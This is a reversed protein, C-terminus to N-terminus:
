NRTLTKQYTKEGAVPVSEVPPLRSVCPVYVTVPSRACPCEVKGNKGTGTGTCYRYKKGTGPVPLVGAGACMHAILTSVSDGDFRLTEFQYLRFQFEWAHADLM